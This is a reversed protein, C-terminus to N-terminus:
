ARRLTIELCPEFSSKLPQCTEKWEGEEEDAEEASTKAKSSVKCLTNSQSLAGVTTNRKVIEAITIAKSIANGSARLTIGDSQLIKEVESVADNIKTGVKITKIM